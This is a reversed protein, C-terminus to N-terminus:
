AALELESGQEVIETQEGMGAGLGDDHIHGRVISQDDSAYMGWFKEPARPIDDFPQGTRELSLDLEARYVIQLGRMAEEKTSGQAGIYRELCMAVWAGEEEFLVFHLTTPQNTEGAM